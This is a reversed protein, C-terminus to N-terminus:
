PAPLGSRDLLDKRYFLVGVATFWPVGYVNGQFTNAQVTGPLFQQRESQFFRSSLDVIWGKTAFEAPWIVDGGIVDIRRGTGNFM